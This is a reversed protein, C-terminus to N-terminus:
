TKLANRAVTKKVSKKPTKDKIPKQDTKNKNYIM